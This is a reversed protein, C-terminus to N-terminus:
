QIIQFPMGTHNPGDTRPTGPWMQSKPLLPIIHQSASSTSASVRVPLAAMRRDTAIPTRRDRQSRSHSRYRIYEDRDQLNHILHM